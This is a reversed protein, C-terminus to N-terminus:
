ELGAPPPETGDGGEGMEPSAVLHALLELTGIGEPALRMAAHVYTWLYPTSITPSWGDFLVGKGDDRGTIFTPQHAHKMLTRGRPLLMLDLPRLEAPAPKRDQGGGWMQSMGQYLMVVQQLMPIYTDYIGRSFGGPPMYLLFCADQQFKAQAAKFHDTDVISPGPTKWDELADKLLQPNITLILKDNDVFALYIQLYMLNIAKVPHGAVTIDSFSLMGGPISRTMQDLTTKFNPGMQTIVVADQLPVANAIPFNGYRDPVRYILYRPGLQAFLPAVMAMPAAVQSMEEPGQGAMLMGLCAFSMVFSQVDWVGTTFGSSDAPVRKLWEPDIRSEQSRAFLGGRGRDMSKWYHLTHYGGDEVFSAGALAEISKWSFRNWAFAAQPTSILRKWVPRLDYYYMAVPGDARGALLPSVTANFLDSTALSQDPPPQAARRAAAPGVAWVIRGDRLQTHIGEEHDGFLHFTQGDIEVSPIGELAPKCANLAAKWESEITERSSPHPIIVAVQTSGGGAEEEESQAEESEEAPATNALRNNAAGAKAPMPMKASIILDQQLADLVFSGVPGIQGGREAARHIEKLLAQVEPEEILARIETGALKEKLSPWGMRYLYTTTDQELHDIGPLTKVAPAEGLQGAIVCPMVASMSRVATAAPAGGAACLMVGAVFVVVQRQRGGRSIRRRMAHM